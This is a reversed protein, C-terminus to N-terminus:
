DLLEQDAMEVILRSSLVVSGKLLQAIARGTSRQTQDDYNDSFQWPSSTNVGQALNAIADEVSPYMWTAWYGFWLQGNNALNGVCWTLGGRYQADFGAFVAM